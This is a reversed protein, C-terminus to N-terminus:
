DCAGISEIWSGVFGLAEQDPLLTGFPPMRGAGNTQMSRFVQSESPAGPSIRLRGGAPSTGQVDCTLTSRLPTSFRLDILGEGGRHCYACNAHLYGRARREATQFGQGRPLPTYTNRPVPAEILGVKELTALPNGLRGGGYDVDDRDLQAAEIGITPIEPSHCSVCKASDVVVHKRGSPLIVTRGNTVLTADTQNDLWVYTYANWTGDPRHLLLQTELKRKEARILKLAVSGPPLTLRGDPAARIVGDEPISLYREAESGDLWQPVNVDYPFLNAVPKKPDVDDTCGTDGLKEPMEPVPQGGPGVRLLQGGYDLIVIEGTADIAFASPSIRGLGEHLALPVPAAEDIGIAWLTGQGFDGYVYKKTLLPVQTGSFVVGGTISTAESRPHDVIPDILGAGDCIMAGYCSKGERIKWGYNGGLVIKDIEERASQGVDGAWLTNTLPDFRFRYPNRLGLAYIEPRGGSTAYPNTTPISYPDGGDVDIRLMKGLLADKNQANNEPDGGSGGDGLGFYLFGDDPGFALTGGNHNSYPQDVTLIRKESTPDFTLGGDNSHFRVVASQFVTGTPTGGGPQNPATYYLYVFGNQAFQPHFAIGLLGAEGGSTIKSADITMAVSVTGDAHLRKVTGKQELVYLTGDHLVVEVPQSFKANTVPQLSILTQTTSPRPKAVCTPSSPRLDLGAPAEKPAAVVPQGFPKPHQESCAAVAVACGMVFTLGLAYKQM